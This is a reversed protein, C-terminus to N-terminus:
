LWKWTSRVGPECKRPQLPLGLERPPDGVRGGGDVVAVAGGKTISAAM